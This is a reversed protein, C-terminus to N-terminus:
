KSSNGAPRSGSLSEILDRTAAIRQKFGADDKEAMALHAAAIQSIVKRLALIRAVGDAENQSLAVYQAAVARRDMFSGGHAPEAPGPATMRSFVSRLTALREECDSRFIGALGTMPVQSGPDRCLLNELNSCYGQIYRDVSHAIQYGREEGYLTMAAQGATSFANSVSGVESGIQQAEAASLVNAGEDVALSSADAAAESAKSGLASMSSSLTAPPSTLCRLATSYGVLFAFQTNITKAVKDSLRPRAELEDLKFGGKELFEDIAADTEVGRVEAISAQLCKSATGVLTDFDAAQSNAVYTACGAGVIALAAGSLAVGFACRGAITGRFVKSINVNIGSPNGKSPEHM